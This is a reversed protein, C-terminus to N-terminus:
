SGKVIRKIKRGPMTRRVVSSDVGLAMAIEESTADLKMLLLMLLRKIDELQGSDHEPM